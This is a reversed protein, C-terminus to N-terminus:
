HHVSYQLLWHSPALPHHSGDRNNDLSGAQETCYSSCRCTIHGFVLLHVVTCIPSSMPGDEAVGISNYCNVHTKGGAHSTLYRCFITYSIVQECGWLRKLEICLQLGGVVIKANCAHLIVDVSACSDVCLDCNPAIGVHEPSLSELNQM